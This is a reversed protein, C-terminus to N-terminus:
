PPCAEAPAPPSRHPSRIYRTVSQYGEARAILQHLGYELTVPLSADVKAGDIYLETGSPNLTFLVM